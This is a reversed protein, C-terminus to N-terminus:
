IKPHIRSENEHKIIEMEPRQIKSFLDGLSPKRLRGIRMERVEKCSQIISDSISCSRIEKVDEM